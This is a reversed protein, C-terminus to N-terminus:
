VVRRRSTHLNSPGTGSSSSTGLGLGALKTDLHQLLRRATSVTINTVGMATLMEQVHVSYEAPDAHARDADALKRNLEEQRAERQRVLEEVEELAEDDATFFPLSFL